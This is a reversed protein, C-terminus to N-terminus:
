SRDCVEAEHVLSVCNGSFCSGTCPREVAELIDSDVAVLGAIFVVLEAFLEVTKPIVHLIHDVDVAFIVSRAAVGFSKM